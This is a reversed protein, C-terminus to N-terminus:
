RWWRGRGHRCGRTASTRPMAGGWPGRRRDERRRRQLHRGEDGGHRHELKVATGRHTVRSAAKPLMAGSMGDSESHEDEADVSTMRAARHPSRGDGAEADRGGGTDEGSFAVGAAHEARRGDGGETSGAAHQRGGIVVAGTLMDTIDLVTCCSSWQASESRVSRTDARSTAEPSMADRTGDSESREDDASGSRTGRRGSRAESDGAEASGRASTGASSSAGGDTHEVRGGESGGASM